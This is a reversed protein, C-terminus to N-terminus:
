KITHHYKYRDGRYLARVYSVCRDARDYAFLDVSLLPANPEVHLMLAEDETAGTAGITREAHHLTIGYKRELIGHLTDSELEQTSFSYDEGLHYYGETVALPEGDTCVIKQVFLVRHGEKVGLREAVEETAAITQQQLVRATYQLGRDALYSPLHGLKESRLQIKPELVFTGRGPQRSIYGETAMDQLARRVTIQSVGYQEELEKECPLADGRGIEGSRISQLLAQELQYYLPIPSTRDLGAM